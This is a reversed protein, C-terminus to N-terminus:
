FAAEPEYQVVQIRLHKRRSTTRRYNDLRGTEPDFRAFVQALAVPTGEPTREMLLLESRLLRFLGSVSYDETHELQIAQGDRKIGAVRGGRAVVDYVVPQMRAAEVRVVLRYSDAGHTEWRHEAAELASLTLPEMRSEKSSCAAALAILGAVCL